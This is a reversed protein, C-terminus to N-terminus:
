NYILSNPGYNADPYNDTYQKNYNVNAQFRVKPSLDVGGSINFNNSNLQSNPVIGRQYNYSTSFRLDYKEGSASVAVNNTNIIGAQLFRTLNDKGRATWPTPVINGTYSAGSPFTTTYTNNPDLIGDYQPILQGEFKPGWVDYDSDNLGAGKGDAFAYRGHDGPGYEDQVKPIALFGKELMLSSNFDVSVGRKDKTGRKTTIQIAGYQGRSGYLASASPGKLITYSEIDDPSINWTDSQIPVGDVVFLPAKGRLYIGPGGLLETSAAVTLGAVKGTLNNIPNPDRAKILSAGKVEQTAYGIKGRDKEIGLATVVVESLQTADTALTVDVSTRGAASVEQSIFGVFSFVLVDNESGLNITYNGSADSITGNTTGKVVINVGPLPSQDEGSVIKGSLTRQAMAYNTAMFCILFLLKTVFSTKQIKEHLPQHM